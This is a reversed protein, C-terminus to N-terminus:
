LGDDVDAAVFEAGVFLVCAGDEGIVVGLLLFPPPPM